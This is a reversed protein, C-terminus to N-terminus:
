AITACASNSPNGAATAFIFASITAAREHNEADARVYELDFAHLPGVRAEAVMERPTQQEVLLLAQEGFGLPGHPKERHAERRLFRDHLRDAGPERVATQTRSTPM